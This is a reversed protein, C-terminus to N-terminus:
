RTPKDPLCNGAGCVPLLAQGSKVLGDVGTAAHDTNPCASQNTLNCGRENAFADARQCNKIVIYHFGAIQITLAEICFIDPMFLSVSQRLVEQPFTHMGCREGCIGEQKLFGKIAPSIQRTIHCDASHVIVRRANSRALIEAIESNWHNERRYACIGIM